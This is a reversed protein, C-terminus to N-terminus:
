EIKELNIYKGNEKPLIYTNWFDDDKIIMNGFTWGSLFNRYFDYVTTNPFNGNVVPSTKKWTFGQKVIDAELELYFYSFIKKGATDTHMSSFIFRDMEMSIVSGSFKDFLGSAYLEPNRAMIQVKHEKLWNEAATIAKRRYPWMGSAVIVPYGEYAPWISLYNEARVPLFRVGRGGRKWYEYKENERNEFFLERSLTYWAYDDQAAPKNGDYFSTFDTDYYWKGKYEMGWLHYGYFEADGPKKATQVTLSRAKKQIIKYGPDNEGVIFLAIFRSSDPSSIFKYCHEAIILTDLWTEVQKLSAPIKNYRKKFDAWQATSPDHKLKKGGWAYYPDWVGQYGKPKKSTHLSSFCSQLLCIPLLFLTLFRFKMNYIYGM